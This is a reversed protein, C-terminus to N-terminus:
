HANAALLGLRNLIIRSESYALMQRKEVFVNFRTSGLLNNQQKFLPWANCIDISYDVEFQLLASHVAGLLSPQLIESKVIEICLFRDPVWDSDMFFDGDIGFHGVAGVRL